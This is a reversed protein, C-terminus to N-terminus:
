KKSTCSVLFHNSFYEAHRGDCANPEEGSGGNDDDVCSYEIGNEWFSESELPIMTGFDSICNLVGSIKIKSHQRRIQQGRTKTKAATFEKGVVIVKGKALVAEDRIASHM